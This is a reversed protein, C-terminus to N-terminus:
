QYVDYMYVYIAKSLTIKCPNKLEKTIDYKIKANNRQKTWYIYTLKIVPFLDAWLGELLAMQPIDTPEM